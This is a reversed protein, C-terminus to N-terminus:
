YKRTIGGLEAVRSVGFEGKSKSLASMGSRDYLRKIGVTSKGYEGTQGSKRYEGSQYLKKDLHDNTFSHESPDSLPSDSIVRNTINYKNTIHIRNMNDIYGNKEPISGKAYFLGSKTANPNPNSQYNNPKSQYNSHSARYIFSDSLPLPPDKRAKHDKLQTEIIKLSRNERNVSNYNLAPEKYPATQPSEYRFKDNSSYQALMTQSHGGQCDWKPQITEGKLTNYNEEGWPSDSFKGEDRNQKPGNDMSTNKDDYKTHNYKEVPINPITPSPPVRSSYNSKGLHDRKGYSDRNALNSSILNCASSIRERPRIDLKKKAEDDIKLIMDNFPSRNMGAGFDRDTQPPIKLTGIADDDIVLGHRKPTLKEAGITLRKYFDIEETLVGVKKNLSNVL